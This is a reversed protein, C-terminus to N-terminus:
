FDYYPDEIEKINENSPKFRFMNFFYIEVMKLAVRESLYAKEYINFVDFTLSRIFSEYKSQYAVSVIKSLNSDDWVYQFFEDYSLRINDM